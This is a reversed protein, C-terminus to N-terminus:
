NKVRHVVKIPLETPLSITINAEIDDYLMKLGNDRTKEWALKNDGSCEALTEDSVVLELSYDKFLTAMASTMEIQAFAKGPCARAGQGFGWWDPVERTPTVPITTEKVLGKEDLWRDPNFYLAPSNSLATKRDESVEAHRWFKPNKYAASTNPFALTGAPIHHSIGDSDVVTIPEVVRRLLFSAPQYISLVEKQVAGIYGKQLVPYDQELLWQEVPREGLQSDLQAQIKNQVDPYLAVFMFIFALTSGVTEHGAMLMFFMNGLVGKELFPSQDTIEPDTGSKM